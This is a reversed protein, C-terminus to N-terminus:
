LFVLRTTYTLGGLTLSWRLVRFQPCLGYFPSGMLLTEVPLTLGCAGEKCFLRNIVILLCEGFTLSLRLVRFGPCLECLDFVDSPEFSAFRPFAVSALTSWCLTGWRLSFLFFFSIVHWCIFFIFVVSNITLLLKMDPDSIGPIFM